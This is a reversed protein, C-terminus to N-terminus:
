KLNALEKFRRSLETGETIIKSTPKTSGTTASAFNRHENVKVKKKNPKGFSEALTSFVIKTERENVARDFNAIVKRKQETTLEFNSFIKNTYLLKANLLNVEKLVSQTQGLAAYAEDRERIAEALEGSGNEGAAPDNMEDIPDDEEHLISNIISDIDEELTSDGNSSDDMEADDPEDLEGVPADAEAVIPAANTEEADMEEELERIIDELNLDDEMGEEGYEGEPAPAATPDMAPDIAPAAPAAPAATAPPAEPAVAVPPAVDVPIDEIPAEADDQYEGEMESMDAMAAAEAEPDIPIDGYEDDEMEEALANSLMSQIRPQFQEALVLKANAIATDRVSNADAIAEKLLDNKAM